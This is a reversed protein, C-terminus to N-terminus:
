RTGEWPGGDNDAAGRGWSGRFSQGDASLQFVFHGTANEQTWQGRLTNGQLTGSLRGSKYPYDGQVQSGQQRMQISGFNSNWSGSWSAGSHGHEDPAPRGIAHGTTGTTSPGPTPPVVVPKPPGPNFVYFFYTDHRDPGIKCTLHLYFRDKSGLPARAQGAATRIAAGERWSISAGPGDGEVGREQGPYLSISSDYGTQSNQQQELKVSIPLTEGPGFSNPVMWSCISSITMKKRDNNIWQKNGTV